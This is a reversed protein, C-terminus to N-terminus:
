LGDIGAIEGKIEDKIKFEAVDFTRRFVFDAKRVEEDTPQPNKNDKSICVVNCKGAIAEQNLCM